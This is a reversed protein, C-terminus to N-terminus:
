LQCRHTQQGPPGFFPGCKQVGNTNHLSGCTTWNTARATEGCFHPIRSVFPGCEPWVKKPPNLFTTKAHSILLRSPGRVPWVRCNGIFVAHDGFKDQLHEKHACTKSPFYVSACEVPPGCAINVSLFLFLIQVSQNTEMGVATSYFFM